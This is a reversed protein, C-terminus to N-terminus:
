TRGVADALEGRSMRSRGPVGKRRAEAYLERKTRPEDGGTRERRAVAAGQKGLASRTKAPLHAITRKSSAARTAKRINRTAARRQKETTM